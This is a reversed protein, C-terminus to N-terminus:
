DITRFATELPTLGMWRECRPMADAYARKSAKGAAGTAQGEIAEALALAAGRCITRVPWVLNRCRDLGAEAALVRADAIVDATARARGALYDFPRTDLGAIRDAAEREILRLAEIGRKVELRIAEPYGRCPATEAQASSSLLAALVVFGAGLRVAINGIRVSSPRQPATM